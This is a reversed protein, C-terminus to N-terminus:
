TDMCNLIRLLINPGTKEIIWAHLIQYVLPVNVPKYRQIKLVCVDTIYTYLCCIHYMNCNFSPEFLYLLIKSLATELEESDDGLRAVLQSWQLTEGTHRVHSMIQEMKLVRGANVGTNSATYLSVNNVKNEIIKQMVNTFERLLFFTNIRELMTHM